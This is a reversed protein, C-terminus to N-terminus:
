SENKVEQLKPANKAEAEKLKAAEIALDRMANLYSDLDKQKQTIEYHLCGSHYALQNYQQQLTDVTKLKAETESM